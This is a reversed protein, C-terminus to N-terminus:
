VKILTGDDKVLDNPVFIHKEWVLKYLNGPRWIQLRINVDPTIVKRVFIYFAELHGIPLKNSYEIYTKHAGTQLYDGLSNLPNGFYYPKESFLCIFHLFATM